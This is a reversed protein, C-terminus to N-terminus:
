NDAKGAKVKDLIPKAHERILSESPAEACDDVFWGQIEKELDAQKNPFNEPANIYLALLHQYVPVWNWQHDKPGGRRLGAPKQQNKCWKRLSPLHVEKGKEGDRTQVEGSALAADYIPDIRPCDNDGYIRCVEMYAADEDVWKFPPHKM